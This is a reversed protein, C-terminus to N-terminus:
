HVAFGCHKFWGIADLKTISNIAEKIANELAVRTRAAKGRLIQKLKSWCEEIPSMDPSYPPLWKIQGGASEILQKARQNHHAGLNDLMVTDGPKLTAVLVNEVYAEFVEGDTAGEVTMVATLGEITLAGIMTINEGYNRPVGECVREGRPARGYLRSMAINVGSEDVVKLREIEVGKIWEVFEVRLRKVRETDRESDYRAKKKEAFGTETVVPVDGFCQQETWMGVESARM